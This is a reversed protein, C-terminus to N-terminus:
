RKKFAAERGRYEEKQRELADQVEFMQRRRQLLRTAASAREWNPPEGASVPAEAGMGEDGRRAGKSAM